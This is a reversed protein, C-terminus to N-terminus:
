GGSGGRARRAVAVRRATEFMATPVSAREALELVARLDEDFHGLESPGEANTGDLVGNVYDSGSSGRQMHEAAATRSVDLRAMFELADESVLAQVAAMGRAINVVDGPNGPAIPVARTAKAREGLAAGDELWHIVIMHYDDAHGTAVLGRYAARVLGAFYSPVGVALAAESYLGVDKAMYKTSFRGPGMDDPLLYREIHNVIPWSDAGNKKMADLVEVPAFRLAQGLVMAEIIALDLCAVVMNNAVKMAKSAALSGVDRIEEAVSGLAAEVAPDLNELGGGLLMLQGTAAAATSRTMALSVTGIGVVSLDESVKVITDPGITSFDVFLQGSRGVRAVQSAVEAVHADAPLVTFVAEADSVADEVSSAIRGGLEKARELTPGHNDFLVLEVGSRQSLRRAMPYGMAGLGIFAVKM